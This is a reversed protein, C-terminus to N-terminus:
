RQGGEKVLFGQAPILIGDVTVADMAYNIYIVTGNSYRNRFVGEQVEERKEFTADAVPQLADTVTRYQKVIQDKWVSYQSTYLWSSGTNLLKIPDEHTLFFSPYSGYDIMRLLEEQPNAYFNSAPTYYDVYGKLVLQLFPVQETELLFGSSHMPVDMMRDTYKWLYQNPRYLAINGSSHESLMSKYTEMSQSRTSASKGYNSFLMAGLSDMAINAMGNKKFASIEREFLKWTSSPQLVHANYLSLLQKSVSQAIDVKGFGGASKDVVVYDTFFYVPIGLAKYKEVFAKWDDGSGVKDEFPFHTPSAGSAGGKTWGRVVVVMRDVEHARLDDIMQEMQPLTAMPIVERGIMQKQSDAALIEIHLPISKAGDQKSAPLEGQRILERQVRNAMGSYDAQTGSLLMVKLSADFENKVEQNLNVGKGKKDVPQFYQERYIWKAVTWNYVTTVGSPYSRIESYPAGGTIMSVFANGGEQHTIGFVPIYIQDPALALSDSMQGTDSLSGNMGLDDGYVRGVFPQTAITQQNLSVLAGSGDPILMYGKDAQVGKTAGFFPYMYLSQLRNDKNTEKISDAPVQFEVADETLTVDMQLSIGPEEYQINASFGHEINVVAIKVQEGTVPAMSIKHKADMYEVTLGSEFFSQWSQNLKEDKEDLTGDWVYSNEKNEVKIGLTAPNVYLIFRNNEAAKEYSAPVDALVKAGAGPAETNSNNAAQEAMVVISVMATLLLITLSMTGIRKVKNLM